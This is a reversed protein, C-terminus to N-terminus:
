NICYSVFVEVQFPNLNSASIEAASKLLMSDSSDDFGDVSDDEFAMVKSPATTLLLVALFAVLVGVSYRM